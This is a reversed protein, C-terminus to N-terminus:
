RERDRQVLSSSGCVIRGRRSRDKGEQTCTGGYRDNKGVCESDMWGWEPARVVIGKSGESTPKKYEVRYHVSTKKNEKIEDYFGGQGTGFVNLPSPEDSEFNRYTRRDPCASSVRSFYTGDKCPDTGKDGCNYKEFFVARNAVLDPYHNKCHTISRSRPPGTPIAGETIFGCKVVDKGKRALRITAYVWGKERYGNGVVAYTDGNEECAWGSYTSNVDARISSCNRDGAPTVTAGSTGGPFIDAMIEKAEAIAAESSSNQSAHDVEPPSALMIGVAGLAAAVGFRTLNHGLESPAPPIKNASNEPNM